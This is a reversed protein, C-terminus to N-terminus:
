VRSRRGGLLGILASGMLWVAGPLPVTAVNSVIAQTVQTNFAGLNGGIPTNALQINTNAFTFSGLPEGFLALLQPNKTDTGSGNSIAFIGNLVSVTIPSTWFGSLLPTAGTGVIDGVLTGTQLTGTIEFYGTNPDADTMGSDFVYSNGSSDQSLSAMLDLNGTTFNLKCGLCNYSGTNATGIGSVVGIDINTGVLSGGLGDYNVMGANPGSQSNFNIVGAANATMSFLGIIISFCFAKM